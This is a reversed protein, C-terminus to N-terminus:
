VRKKRFVNEIAEGVKDADALTRKIQKDATSGSPPPTTAGAKDAARVEKVEEDRKKQWELEDRKSKKEAAVDILVDIFAAYERPLNNGNEFQPVDKWTLGKRELWKSAEAIARQKAQYESPQQAPQQQPQVEQQALEVARQAFEQKIAKQIERRKTGATAADLNGAEELEDILATREEIAQDRQQHLQATIMDRQSQKLRPDRLVAEAIEQASPVTTKGAQEKLAALEARLAKLDDSPTVAAEPAKEPPTLPPTQTRVDAPDSVDTEKTVSKDVNM